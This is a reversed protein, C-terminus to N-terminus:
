QSFHIQFSYMGMACLGQLISGSKQAPVEIETIGSPPLNTRYGIDPIVLASSCDFTGRTNVKILTPVGAKAITVRPSYGGKAYIEIVQKGDSIVAANPVNQPNDSNGSKALLVAGSIIAVAIILSLIVFKM